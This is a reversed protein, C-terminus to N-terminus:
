NALDKRLVELDQTPLLLRVLRNDGDVWFTGNGIGIFEIRFNKLELTEGRLELKEDGLHTLAVPIDNGVIPIFGAFMQRGRKRFDYQRALHDYLHYVNIDVIVSNKELPISTETSNGGRSLTRRIEDDDVVVEYFDGTNGSTYRCSYSVPTKGGEALVMKTSFTMRKTELGDAVLIDHDSSSILTNGAGTREEVEESGAVQGKILIVYSQSYEEAYVSGWISLISFALLLLTKM